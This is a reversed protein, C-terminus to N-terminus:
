AGGMLPALASASASVARTAAPGASQVGGGLGVGLAEETLSTLTALVGPGFAALLALGGLLVVAGALDPSRAVEGRRRAEARRRATPAETKDGQQQEDDSM